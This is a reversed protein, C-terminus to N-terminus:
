KDSLQGLLEGLQKIKDGYTAWDGQKQAALAEDYLKAAAEITANAGSGGSGDTGSGPESSGGDVEGDGSSGGSGESAGFVKLLAGKLDKDMVVSCPTPRLTNIKILYSNIIVFENCFTSM